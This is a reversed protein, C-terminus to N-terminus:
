GKALIIPKFDEKPFACFGMGDGFFFEEYDEPQFTTTIVCHFKGPEKSMAFGATDATDEEKFLKDM